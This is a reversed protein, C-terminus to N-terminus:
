RSIILKGNTLQKNYEKIEYLYIGNNINKTELIYVGQKNEITVKKIITGKIDTIILDASTELLPLEWEFVTFDTAPNPSVKLKNYDNNFNNFRNHEITYSKPLSDGIHGYRGNCMDYAFCLINQAKASAFGLPEDAIIELTTIETETLDHITKNSDNLSSMFEYYDFYNNYGIMENENLEFDIPIDNLVMEASDFYKYEIYIDAIAFRDSLLNRINHWEILSSISYEDQSRANIILANANFDRKASYKALGAELITRSTVADWNAIIMDIMYPPLTNPIDNELEDMFEMRRTADPNALCIELLLADPLIGTYAAEKLAEQSVYPTIAMLHNRLDWADQSWTTQIDLLINPTNGDDMLQNYNYLLNLYATEASYYDAEANSKPINGMPYDYGDSIHSYCTNANPVQHRSVFIPTVHFPYYPNNIDANGTYLYNISNENKNCINGEPDVTNFTFINGASIENNYDGQYERIGSLFPGEYQNTSIIDYYELESFNNCLIQLGTHADNRNIDIPNIAHQIESIDNKYVENNDSGSQRIIIGYTEFDQPPAVSSAVISNEEIMYGTSKDTIIAIIHKPDLFTNDVAIGIENIIFDNRIIVPYNTGNIDIGILNKEFKADKIRVNKVGDDTSIAKQLNYFTSSHKYQEPCEEGPQLGIDCNCSVIFGAQNADIGINKSNNYVITSQLNDFNCEKFDIGDVLELEVHKGFVLNPYINGFYDDNVSFNCINFYSINRKLNGNYLTNQFPGFKVGITNNIFASSNVQIIGGKEAYIGVDANEIKSSNYMKIAPEQSNAINGQPSSNGELIVGLWLEEPEGCIYQSTLTTNNLKVYAGNISSTGHKLVMKSGAIFHITMDQIEITKGMPIEVDEDLYIIGDVSNFPNNGCGPSWVVNSGYSGPQPFEDFINLQNNYDYFQKFEYGDLQDTFIFNMNNTSGVFPAMAGRATLNTSILNTNNLVPNSQSVIGPVDPNSLTCITGIVTAPAIPPPLTGSLDAFYMVNDKGLEILSYSFDYTTTEIRYMFDNQVDYCKLGTFDRQTLYLYDGSETFEFGIFMCDCNYGNCGTSNDDHKNYHPFGTFDQNIYHNTINNGYPQGPISAFDTQIGLTVFKNPEQPYAILYYNAGTPKCIELETNYDCQGTFYYSNDIYIKANERVIDTMINSVRYIFLLADGQIIYLYENANENYQTIGCNVHSPNWAWSSTSQDYVEDLILQPASKVITTEDVYEIKVVYHRTDFTATRNTSNWLPSNAYNRLTYFVYFQNQNTCPDADDPPVPVISIDPKIAFYMQFRNIDNYGNAGLDHLLITGYSPDVFSEGYKNYINNDVIFFQINGKRDHVIQQCFMPYQGVYNEDLLYLNGGSADNFHADLSAEDLPDFPQYPTFSTSIPLPTTASTACDTFDM